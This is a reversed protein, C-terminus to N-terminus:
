IPDHCSDCQNPANRQKHCAVCAAMSTDKVKQMLDMERVEGHCTECTVNAKVSVHAAHSFYVFPALRYVREWPVGENRSHYGALKEIEASRTRTTGHCSMCTSTPPLTARSETDVKTHCDICDLAQELHARHSYAIPQAPPPPPKFEAEPKEQAAPFALSLIFAAM